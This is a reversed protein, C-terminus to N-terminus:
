EVDWNSEIQMIAIHEMAMLDVKSFDSFDFEKLCLEWTEQASMDDMYNDQCWKLVELPNM